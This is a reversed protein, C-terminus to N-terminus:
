PRDETVFEFHWQEPSGDDVLVYVGGAVELELPPPYVVARGVSPGGNCWILMRDGQDM